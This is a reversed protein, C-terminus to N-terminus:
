REAAREGVGERSRFVGGGVVRARRALQRLKEDGRGARGDREPLPEHLDVRPRPRANAEDLQHLRAAHRAVGLLLLLDLLAPAARPRELRLGVELLEDLEEGRARAGGVRAELEALEAGPAAELAVGRARELLERVLVGVVRARELRERPE